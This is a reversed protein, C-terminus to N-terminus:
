HQKGDDNGNNGAPQTSLIRRGVASSDDLPPPVRARPSRRMARPSPRKTPPHRAHRPAQSHRFDHRFGRSGRARDLLFDNKREH